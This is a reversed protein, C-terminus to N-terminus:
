AVLRRGYLVAAAMTGALLVPVLAGFEPVVRTGIIEIEREGREYQVIVLQTMGTEDGIVIFDDTMEGDVQVQYPGVLLRHAPIIINGENRRQENVAISVRREEEDFAMGSVQSSTAATFRVTSNTNEVNVNQTFINTAGLIVELATRFDVPESITITELSNQFERLHEDHAEPSTATLSVAISRTLTFIVYTNTKSYADERSCEHVTHFVRIDNLMVLEDLISSCSDDEYIVVRGSDVGVESTILMKTHVREVVLTTMTVDPNDMQPHVIAYSEGVVRGSWGPPFQIEFGASSAAFRGVPEETQAYAVQTIGMFLLVIAMGVGVLKVVM